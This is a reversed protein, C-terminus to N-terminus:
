HNRTLFEIKKPMFIKLLNLIEQPYAFAVDQSMIGLEAFLKAFMFGMTEFYLQSTVLGAVNGAHGALNALTPVYIGDRELIFLAVDFSITSLHM